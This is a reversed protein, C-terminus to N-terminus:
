TGCLTALDLYHAVASAALKISIRGFGNSGWSTVHYPDM